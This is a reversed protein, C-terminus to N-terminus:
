QKIQSCMEVIKGMTNKTANSASLAVEYLIYISLVTFCALNLIYSFMIALIFGSESALSALLALIVVCSKIAINIYVTRNRDAQFVVICLLGIELFLFLRATKWLYEPQNFMAMFFTIGTMTNVMWTWVFIIRNRVDMVYQDVVEESIAECTQPLLPQDM